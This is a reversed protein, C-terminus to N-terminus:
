NLKCTSHAQVIRPKASAAAAVVSNNQEISGSWNNNVKNYQDTEQNIPWQLTHHWIKRMWIKTQGATMRKFYSEVTMMASTVSM